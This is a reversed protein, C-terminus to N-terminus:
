PGLLVFCVRGYSYREGGGGFGEASDSWGFGAASELKEATGAIYRRDLEIFDYLYDKTLHTGNHASHYACDDGPEDEALHLAGVGLEDVLDVLNRLVAM